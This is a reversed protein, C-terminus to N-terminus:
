RQRLFDYISVVPPHHAESDDAVIITTMHLLTREGPAGGLRMIASCNIMM